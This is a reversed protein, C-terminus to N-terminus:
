NAEKVSGNSSEGARNKGRRGQRVKAEAHKARKAEKNHHEKKECKESACGVFLAAALTSCIIWKIKM